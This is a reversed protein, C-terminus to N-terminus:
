RWDGPEPLDEGSIWRYTREAWRIRAEGLRLRLRTRWPYLVLPLHERTDPIAGEDMLLEAPVALVASMKRIETIVPPPVVHGGNLDLDAFHTVRDGMAERLYDGLWDTM